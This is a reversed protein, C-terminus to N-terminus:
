SDPVIEVHAHEGFTNVIFGQFRDGKEGSNILGIREFLANGIAAKAQEVGANGKKLDAAHQHSIEVLSKTDKGM